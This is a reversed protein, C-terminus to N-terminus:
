QVFCTKHLLAESAYKCIIYSSNHFTNYHIINSTYHTIYSIINFLTYLMILRFTIIYLKVFFQMSIHLTYHIIYRSIYLRYHITCQETICLTVSHSLTYHSLANCVQMYHIIYLTVYFINDTIYLTYHLTRYHMIHRFTIIYLTVFCQM